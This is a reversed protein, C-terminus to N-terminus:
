NLASSSKSRNKCYRAIHGSRKCCGCIPKGDSDWVNPSSVPVHTHQLQSTAGGPPSRCRLERLLEQTLDKLQDKLETVIEQKLARKWNVDQSCHRSNYTGGVTVETRRYGTDELLQAERQLTDFTCQPNQRAHRRLGQLLPSEELGFLLQEKLHQDTPPKM